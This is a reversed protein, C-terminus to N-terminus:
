GWVLESATLDAFRLTRGRLSVPQFSAYHKQDAGAGGRLAVFTTMDLIRAVVIRHAVTLYRCGWAGPTCLLLDVPNFRLLWGAQRMLPASAGPYFRLYEKLDAGVPTAAAGPVQLWALDVLLVVAPMWCLAAKWPFPARWFNWNDDGHLRGFFWVLLVLDALLCAHHTWTVWESQLRLSQLQVVLLVFVPFVALLARVTWRFMWSSGRSGEPMVLASVFEVNALLQRCRDRDERDPVLRPLDTLFRRVNGALM